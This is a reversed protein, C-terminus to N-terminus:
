IILRTARSVFAISRQIPPLIWLDAFFTELTKLKQIPIQSIDCSKGRIQANIPYIQIKVSYENIQQFKFYCQRQEFLLLLKFKDFSDIM